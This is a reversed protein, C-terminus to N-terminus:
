RSHAIRGQLVFEMTHGFGITLLNAGVERSTAYNVVVNQKPGGLGALYGNFTSSLTKGIKESTVLEKLLKIVPAQREQLGVATRKVGMTKKLAVLEQAEALNRGLPWELYVDKGAKLIPRTVNLHKDVRVSVVVM